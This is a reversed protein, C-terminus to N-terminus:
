LILKKSKTTSERYLLKRTLKSDFGKNYYKCICNIYIFFTFLGGNQLGLDILTRDQTPHLQNEFTRLNVSSLSVLDSHSGHCSSVDVDTALAPSLKHSAWALDLPPGPGM